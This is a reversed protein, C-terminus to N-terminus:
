VLPSDTTVSLRSLEAQLELQYRGLRRAAAAVMVSSSYSFVEAADLAFDLRGTESSQPRATLRALPNVM